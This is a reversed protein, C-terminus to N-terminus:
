NYQKRVRSHKYGSAYAQTSGSYSQHRQIITTTKQIVGTKPLETAGM